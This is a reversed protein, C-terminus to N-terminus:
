AAAATETKRQRWAFLAALALFPVLWAVRGQYRDFVGSIAGCIAANLAVGALVLLVAYTFDQCRADRLANRNRFGMIALMAWSAAYCALMVLSLLALPMAQRGVLTESYHRIEGNLPSNASTRYPALGYETIGVTAFQRLMGGASTKFQYLGHRRLTGLVIANQEATVQARGKADLTAFAGRAPDHDWLFENETMPMRDVFRCTFYPRAPCTERLYREATGDGIMRALLFPPPSAVYGARVIMMDTAAHGIWGLLIPAALIAIGRWDRHRLVLSLVIGLGVLLIALALHSKHFLISVLALGLWFVTETRSMDRRYALFIGIALILLGAFIDPMVVSCFAGAGALAGTLAVAATRAPAGSSPIMRHAALWLALIATMAQVLPMGWRGLTSYVSVFALGYYVSRANSVGDDSNIGLETGHRGSPAAHTAPGHKTAEDHKAAFNLAARGAQFYGVTDPYLIPGGNMVAPYTFSLLLAFALLASILIGRVANMKPGSDSRFSRGLSM